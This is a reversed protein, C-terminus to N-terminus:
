MAYKWAYCGALTGLYVGPPRAPISCTDLQRSRQRLYTCHRERNLQPISMTFLRGNTQCLATRQSFLTLKSYQAPHVSKSCNYASVVLLLCVSCLELNPMEDRQCCACWRHRTTGLFFLLAGDRQFWCQRSTKNYDLFSSLFM